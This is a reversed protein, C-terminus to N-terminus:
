RVGCAESSRPWQSGGFRHGNVHWIRYAVILQERPSASAPERPFGRPALSLWTGVAIQMGGHDVSPRGLWDTTRHWDISEHRHICMAQSVWWHPLAFTEAAHAKVTTFAAAVSLVASAALHILM